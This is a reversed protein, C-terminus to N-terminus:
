RKNKNQEYLMVHDWDEIDGCLPFAVTENSNDVCKIREGYHNVGAVCKIM